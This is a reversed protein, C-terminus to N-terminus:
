REARKEWADSVMAAYVSPAEGCENPCAIYNFERGGADLYIGRLEADIEEITELCDAAFGPCIVDVRRYDEQALRKVTDISSPELWKAPGFKSQFSLTWEDSRLGLELAIAEVTEHCQAEYPDGRDSSSQPIGHFSFLLKGQDGLPGKQAWLARINDALMKIYRPDTHYGSFRVVSQKWASKALVADVLDYVSATTQKAYQAFMPLVVLGAPNTALIEPLVDQVRQTGYCMAWYVNFRDDLLEQMKKATRETHVVLPSGEEMWVSQYRRASEPSRKPLIVGRLLPQWLMPSMEIIRPDSLFEQLYKKVAETTPAAPSGTNVILVAPLSM